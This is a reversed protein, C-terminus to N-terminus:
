RESKGLRVSGVGAVSFELELGDGVLLQLTGSDLPVTTFFKGECDDPEVLVDLM